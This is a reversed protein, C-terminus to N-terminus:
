ARKSRKKKSSFRGSQVLKTACSMCYGVRPAAIIRPRGRDYHLYGFPSNEGLRVMALPRQERCELCLGERFMLEDFHDQGRSM